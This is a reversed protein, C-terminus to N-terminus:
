PQVKNESKCIVAYNEQFDYPLRAPVQVWFWLYNKKKKIPLLFKIADFFPALILYV